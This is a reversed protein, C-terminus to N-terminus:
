SEPPPTSGSHAQPGHKELIASELSAADIGEIEVLKTTATLGTLITIASARVGLFKALFKIIAANAKGDVPPAAVRLKWAEGLRGAFQTRPASATIKLSLRTKM